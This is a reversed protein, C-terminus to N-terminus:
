HSRSEIPLRGQLVRYRAQSLDMAYFEANSKIAIAVGTLIAAMEKDHYSGTIWKAFNSLEVLRRSHTPALFAKPIRTERSKVMEAYSRLGAPLESLKILVSNACGEPIRFFNTNLSEIEDAVRQLRAPFERLAKWSKGTGQLWVEERWQRSRPAQLVALYARIGFAGSLDQGM